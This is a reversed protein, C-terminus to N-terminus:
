CHAPLRMSRSGAPFEEEFLGRSVLHRLVSYLSDCDTGSAAALDDIHANGGNLSRHYAANGGSARLPTFLDSLNEFDM